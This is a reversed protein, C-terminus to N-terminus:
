GYGPETLSTFEILRASRGCMPEHTALSAGPLPGINGNTSTGCRMSTAPPRRAPCNAPESPPLYSGSSVPPLGLSSSKLSSWRGSTASRRRGVDQLAPEAQEVLEVLLGALQLSSAM